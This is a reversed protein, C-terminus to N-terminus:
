HIHKPAHTYWQTHWLMSSHIQSLSSGHFPGRKKYIHKQTLSCTLVISLVLASSSIFLRIQIHTLTTVSNVFMIQSVSSGRFSNRPPSVFMSIRLSAYAESNLAITIRFCFVCFVSRQESFGAMCKVCMWPNCWNDFYECKLLFVNQDHHLPDWRQLGHELSRGRQIHTPSILSNTYFYVIDSTYLRHLPFNWM